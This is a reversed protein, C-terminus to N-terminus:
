PARIRSLRHDRLAGKRGAPLSQPAGLDGLWGQVDQHLGARFECLMARQGGSPQFGNDGGSRGSLARASRSRHPRAARSGELRRLAPGRGASCGSGSAELLANRRMLVGGARVVALLILRQQPSLRIPVGRWEVTVRDAMRLDGCAIPEFPTLDIGCNWCVAGTM